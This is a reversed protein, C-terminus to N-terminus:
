EGRITGGWHHLNNVIFEVIQKHEDKGSGMIKM